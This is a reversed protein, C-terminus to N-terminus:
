IIFYFRARFFDLRQAFNEWASNKQASFVEAKEINALDRPVPVAPSGQPTENLKNIGCFGYISSGTGAPCIGHQPPSSYFAATKDNVTIGIGALVPKVENTAQLVPTGEGGRFSLPLRRKM